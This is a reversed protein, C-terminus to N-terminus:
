PLELRRALSATIERALGEDFTDPGPLLLGAARDCALQAPEAGRHIPRALAKRHIRLERLRHDLCKHAQVGFAQYVATGAQHVPIRYQARRQRIQLHERLLLRTLEPVQAIREAIARTM